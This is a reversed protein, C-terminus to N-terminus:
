INFNLRNNEQDYSWPFTLDNISMVNKDWPTVSSNFSSRVFYNGSNLDSSDECLFALQTCALPSGFTITNYTIPYQSPIPSYTAQEANEVTMQNIYMGNKSGLNQTPNETFQITTQSISKASEPESQTEKQETLYNGILGLIDSITPNSPITFLTSFSNVSADSLLNKKEMSTGIQTPSDAYASDMILVTGNPIVGKGDIITYSKRGPYNSIRDQM